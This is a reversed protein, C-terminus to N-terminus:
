RCGAMRRIGELCLVFGLVCLHTIQDQATTSQPPGQGMLEGATAFLPQQRASLQGFPQIRGAIERQLLHVREGEVGQEGKIVGGGQRSHHDVGYTQQVIEAVHRLPSHLLYGGLPKAFAQLGIGPGVQSKASAQAPQHRELTPQPKTGEGIQRTAQPLSM